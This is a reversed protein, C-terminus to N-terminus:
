ESWFGLVHSFLRHHWPARHWTRVEERAVEVDALVFKGNTKNLHTVDLIHYKGLHCRTALAEFPCRWYNSANVDAVTILTLFGNSLTFQAASRCGRVRFHTRIWWDFRPTCELCSAFLAATARILLSSSCPGHAPLPFVELCSLSSGASCRVFDAWITTGVVKSPM